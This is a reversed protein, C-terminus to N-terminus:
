CGRLKFILNTGNKKSVYKIPDEKSWHAPANFSVKFGMSNIYEVRRDIKM